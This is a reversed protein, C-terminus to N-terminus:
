PVVCETFEPTWQFNQIKEVITEFSDTGDWEIPYRCNKTHGGQFAALGVRAAIRASLKRLETVSPFIIGKALEESSVTESLVGSAARMMEDTMQTAGSMLAGLGLGPFIYVNNCQNAYHTSGNLEVDPFPSGSAFICAGQTAQFAAEATCECTSTPNSLAMILPKSCGRAVEELIAPTFEGPCSSCGILVDPKALKVVDALKMGPDLDPRRFREKVPNSNTVPGGILGKSDLVYFQKYSAELSLGLTMMERQIIEAIGISASGAGVMVIRVNKLDSAELKRARLAALIASLAVCGTGQIDDNFVFHTPRYRALLARAHDTAFDEFHILARPFRHMMANVFKDMYRFYHDEDKIRAQKLGFYNPDELLTKNDTGLDIGVPLCQTPSVGSGAVYLELKGLSIGVGNAGLDGLGLIRSGDTVIILRVDESPWNYVISALDDEDELTLYMERSAAWYNHWNQCIAGITPTYVVQAMEIINDM